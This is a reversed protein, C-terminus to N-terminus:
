LGLLRDILDDLKSQGDDDEDSLRDEDSDIFLSDSSLEIPRPFTESSSYGLVPDAFVKKMYNAWIPLSVTAGQGDATTNFHIDRDDGGVWCATVLRPVFGVFWGDSNSTTTGTKGAIEGTFGYTNRLRQGTGQNIVAQLMDTMNYATLESFVQHPRPDFHAIVHGNADEIRSVLIPETQMGENAFATYASALEAITIDCTGLCLSISPHIAPNAVNMNWLLERLRRGTPDVRNMVEATVWNNSQSIGWKLTVPEGYRARSGNRPTWTSNTGAVNYTRQANIVQDQPTMGDELALSYIFPKMTSGIQRRGQMCMDYQFAAYNIGGVYAKVYGTQPEMSMMGSRLFSKYYRISDMPSMLTDRMGNYTFVSMSVPTRFDKDIESESYGCNKLVRYRESQKKARNLASLMADRNLGTYPFNPDSSKRRNFLPQLQNAMQNYVADEAYKQMRSDITTYFKLGDTYLDYASGDPKFNKNCWGYLPDKEWALSDAYYQQYQWSAYDKREPKEATVIRRLHERLYTAQGERHDVRHFRSMDLPELSYTNYEEQTIYGCKEMQSLVVNRREVCREPHTVPNYYSPNKCMGILLASEVMSLDHPSKRFYVNAATKIGVANHLFDFYNLYLTIIEDKTFQRELEVAIVWEIPKQLLRELTNSAVDTYLQKALQQTITSGGGASKQRLIGRKVIARALAKADIGSHEYFREDETAVLARVVFPSISDYDVFVRNENRSWTGMLQGDASLIQSAYRNIPSQIEAMDPMYGIWGAHIALLTGTTLLIGGLVLVWLTIILRRWMNM